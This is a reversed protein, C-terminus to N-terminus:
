DNVTCAIKDPHRPGQDRVCVPRVLRSLAADLVNAWRTEVIEGPALDIEALRKGFNVIRLETCFALGIPPWGAGRALPAQDHDAGSRGAQLGRARRRQAPMM